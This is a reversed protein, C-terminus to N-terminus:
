GGYGYTVQAEDVQGPTAGAVEAMVQFQVYPIWNYLSFNLIMLQDADVDFEIYECQVKLNFPPGSTDVSTIPLCYKNAGAGTTNKVLCRVRINQADNIDLNLWLGIQTYGDVAIEPGLDAWAPTVNQAAVILAVPSTVRFSRDSYMPAVRIASLGLDLARNIFGQLRGLM